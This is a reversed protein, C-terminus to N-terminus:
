EVTYPTGTSVSKKANEIAQNVCKVFTSATDTPAFRLRVLVIGTESAAVDRDFTMKRGPLLRYKDHPEIILVEREVKKPDKPDWALAVNVQNLGMYIPKLRRIWELITAVFFGLSFTAISLLVYSMM